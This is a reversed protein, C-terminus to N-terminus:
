SHSFPLGKAEFGKKKGFEGVQVNRLNPTPQTEVLESTVQSAPLHKGCAQATAATVETCHERGAQPGRAQTESSRWTHALCLILSSRLCGLLFLFTIAEEWVPWIESRCRSFDLNLKWSGKFEDRDNERRRKGRGEEQGRERVRGM